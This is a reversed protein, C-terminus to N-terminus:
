NKSYNKLNNLYDDSKELLEKFNRAEHDIAIRIDLYPNKSKHMWSSVYFGFQNGTQILQHLYKRVFLGNQKKFTQYFDKTINNIIEDIKENDDKSDFWHKFFDFESPDFGHMGFEWDLIGTIVLTDPDILINSSNLDGHFVCKEDDFDLNNLCVNQKVIENLNIQFNEYDHAIKQYRKYKKMEKISWSIQQNLYDLYTESPEITPGDQVINSVNMNIDFCGIKNPVIKISKLEKIFNLMQDIIKEDLDRSNAPLVDQLVKGNLFEMLIYEFGLISTKANNSYSYIKPVPISTHNKLHKMLAIENSSRRNKWFKHPNNIRLILKKEKNNQEDNVTLFYIKNIVGYSDNFLDYSILRFGLPELLQKLRDADVLKTINKWEKEQEDFTPCELSKLENDTIENFIIEEYNETM